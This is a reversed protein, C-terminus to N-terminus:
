LIKSKNFFFTHNDIYLWFRAAQEGLTTDKDRFRERTTSRYLEYEKDSMNQIAVRIKDFFATIRGSIYDTTKVSSQVFAAIHGILRLPRNQRNLNLTNNSVIEM